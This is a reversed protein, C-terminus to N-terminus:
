HLQAPGSGTGAQRGMEREIEDLWDSLSVDPHNARRARVEENRSREIANLRPIIQLRNAAAIVAPRAAEIIERLRPGEVRGSASTCALLWVAMINIPKRAERFFERAIELVEPVDDPPMHQSAIRMDDTAKEVGLGLELECAPGMLIRLGEFMGFTLPATIVGGRRMDRRHGIAVEDVARNTVVCGAVHSAEHVATHARDLVRAPTLHRGRYELIYRLADPELDPVRPPNKYDPQFRFCADTNRPQIMHAAFARNLSARVHPAEIRTPHNDPYTPM